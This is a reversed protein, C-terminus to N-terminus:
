ARKQQFFFQCFILLDWLITLLITQLARTCKRAQPWFNCQPVSFYVVITVVTEPESIDSIPWQTKKETLFYVRKIPSKKNFLFNFYHYVFFIFSLYNISYLASHFIFYIFDFLRFVNLLIQCKHSVMSCWGSISTKYIVFVETRLSSLILNIKCPRFKM